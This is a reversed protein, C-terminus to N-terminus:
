EQIGFINEVNNMIQVAYEPNSNPRTFLQNALDYNAFLESVNYTVVLEYSVQDIANPVEPMLSINKLNDNFGCHISMLESEDQEYVGDGNVDVAGEILLFKYGATWNWHQINPNDASLPSDAPQLAPDANNDPEGVGINFTIEQLDAVKEFLIMQSLQYNITWLYAHYKKRTVFFVM